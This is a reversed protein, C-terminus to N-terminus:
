AMPEGAARLQAAGLIALEPSQVLLVAGQDAAVPGLTVAGSGLRVAVAARVIHTETLTRGTNEGSGIPTKQVPDYTVLMATAGAPLAAAQVAINGNDRRVSVAVPLAGASTIAANVAASNSGVVMRTGNVVLAPTYVEDGLRAAYRHQRETWDPRSFRDRWGLRNWYDVHWSLAVIDPQAALRTLLMDAPPCSSCGQSTFLELVVPPRAAAATRVQSVALSGAGLILSRRQM